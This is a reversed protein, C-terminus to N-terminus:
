EHLQGFPRLVHTRKQPQRVRPQTVLGLRAVLIPTIGESIGILDAVFLLRPDTQVSSVAVARAVQPADEDDGGILDLRKTM